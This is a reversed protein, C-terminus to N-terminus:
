YIDHKPLKVIINLNRMDKSSIRKGFFSSPATTKNGAIITVFTTTPDKLDMERNYDETRGVTLTYLHEEGARVNKNTNVLTRDAEARLVQQTTEYRTGNIFM